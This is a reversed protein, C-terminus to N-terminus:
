KDCVVYNYIKGVVDSNRLRLLLITQEDEVLIYRRDWNWNTKIFWGEIADSLTVRPMQTKLWDLYKKKAEYDGALKHPLLYVRFHYKGHPLKKSLITGANDLSDITSEDPEFRHIIRDKFKESVDDYFIKDNTYLDFCNRQIRKTWSKSDFASLFDILEVFLTSDKKLTDTLYPPIWKITDVGTCIKKLKELSYLRFASAGELRISIKYLWKNYFKKNTKKSKIV